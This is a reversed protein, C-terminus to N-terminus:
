HWSRTLKSPPSTTRSSTCCTSSRRSISRCAAPHVCPAFLCDVTLPLPTDLATHQCALWRTPRHRRLQGLKGQLQPVWPQSHTRSVKLERQHMDEAEETQRDQNRMEAKKDELEKKTIEWFANIKDQLMRCPWVPVCMSQARHQVTLPRGHTDSFLCWPQRYHQKQQKQEKQRAPPMHSVRELQMYNRYEEEKNKEKELTQIKQHLEEISAAEVDGAAATDKKADKKKDKGAAQVCTSNLVWNVPAPAQQHHGVKPKGDKKKPAM